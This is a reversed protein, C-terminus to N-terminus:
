RGLSGVTLATWHAAFAWMDAIEEIVKDTPKGAGHGSRAEVRLMRPRDGTEAAQLAAAYKFSHAPVVRDDTDATMVLIAPYAERDKITHLPSYALLNHFDSEISPDGFEQIWFQGSTFRDFRLMDMVGVGAIAAAFLDPRQNVVAGVMLGGNSEGHIALGDPTAIGERKLYDAAAIFDDFSNQKSELRGNDHWAKGYEGGGRINAVAYVGGQEVWAMTAPSYFPVLSIGFGGYATLMTPAPGTIDRRRVIFMPVRTGDKSAYFRQEVLIRDLDAAVEPKAWISGVNAGVDYRYISMPTDHSTFVFFAESDGPRGHFSGTTGIGPLELVGDATGDLQFREVRSKADVMYTAVLRDGILSVFRLVAGPKEAILDTFVPQPDALDAIVVKGREAGEETTLFIRTGLNGALVWSADFSGVLSRVAWEQTHLDVISLANGGRLATSYIVAFRGDPTTDVTHILPLESQPAYVLRDESQSTGLRHYYVAHAGIPAEFAGDGAPQPNRSYFFGASNGSWAINTFRAWQIDDSLTEGSPVDIVRITRWDAGDKQVTFAVHTGDESPAWEALALTGNASWQNPDIVVREAGDIGDRVVLASQGDLGPNRTFFYRGGRKQPATLREHDFLVTLRKRFVERGPLSCLYPASLANQADVWRAVEPDRRIDGELWRYPDRIPTAFHDDCVEVQRTEPYDM